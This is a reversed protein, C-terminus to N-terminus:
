DTLASRRWDFTIGGTRKIVKSTHVTRLKFGSLFPQQWFQGDDLSGRPILCMGYYSRIHGNGRGSPGELFTIHFHAWWKGCKPDHSLKLTGNPVEFDETTTCIYDGTLPLTIGPIASRNDCAVSYCRSGQIYEAHGTFIGVRRKYDRQRKPTVKGYERCNKTIFRSGSDRFTGGINRSTSGGDRFTSGGPREHRRQKSNLLNARIIAQM